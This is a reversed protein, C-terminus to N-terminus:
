IPINIIHTTGNKGSDTILDGKLFNVRSQINQLGIGKKNTTHDMGIGNDYTIIQLSDDLVSLQVTAESAEAHKVINNLLENIIRYLTIAYIPSIKKEDGEKVFEFQTNGGTNLDNIRTQITEFLGSDVFDQPLLDHSISRVDSTVKLVLSLAKAFYNKLYINNAMQEDPLNSIHLQLAGLTAGVDDHLDEALRRREQEQTSVIKETLQQQQSNLEILLQEKEKRFLSYRATLAFSLIIIEITLGVVMGNPEVLNINTLGIYNFYINLTGIVGFSIAILYVVAQKSGQIVKEIVGALLLICGACFVIDGENFVIASLTSNLKIGFIAMLIEIFIRCGLLIMVLKTLLYFKSNDRKQNTFLQMVYLWLLMCGYWWYEENLAWRFGPFNKLVFEYTIGDEMMLYVLTAFVYFAYWLHLKDKLSFYLFLSFVIVFLFIGTYVALLQYRGTEDAMYNDANKFGFPMYMYNANNRARLYYTFTSDAPIAIKFLFNRNPIPRSTYPYNFGTFVEPLVKNGTQKYLWLTDVHEHIGLFLLRARKDTNKIIVKFWFASFTIGANFTTIADPKKFKGSNFLAVAKGIPMVRSTDEIYAMHPLIKYSNKGTIFMTDAKQALLQQQAFLSVSLFLFLKLTKM